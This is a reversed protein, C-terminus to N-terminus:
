VAGIVGCPGGDNQVLGFFLEEKENLIVGIIM